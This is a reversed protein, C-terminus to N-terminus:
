SCNLAAFKLAVIVNVNKFYQLLCFTEEKCTLHNTGLFRENLYLLPVIDMNTGYKIRLWYLSSSYNSTNRADVILFVVSKKANLIISIFHYSILIGFFLGYCTGLWRNRNRLITLRYFHQIVHFYFIHHIRFLMRIM